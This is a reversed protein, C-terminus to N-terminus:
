YSKGTNIMGSIARTYSGVRKDHRNETTDLGQRAEKRLLIKVGPSPLGDQLNFVLEILPNGAAFGLTTFVCLAIGVGLARFSRIM